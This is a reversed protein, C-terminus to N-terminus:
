HGLSDYSPPASDVAVSGHNHPVGVSATGSCEGGRGDTAKFAIRYIRGDGSGDREARLSVDNSAAGLVADASGGTPEDQTVGTITLTTQDGDPDTARSLSVPVLKHNPPWVTDPTATVHSCDPNLPQWSPHNANGQILPGSGTMIDGVYLRQYAESCTEQCGQNLVWANETEDPSWLPSAVYCGFFYPTDCGANPAKGSTNHIVTGDASVTALVPVSHDFRVAALKSGDPSWDLGSPGFTGPDISGDTTLQVLGSGDPHITWIDFRNNTESVFAIKTGDPSWAPQDSHGTTTLRTQDTGYANMTYIDFNFCYGPGGCKTFRTFAIRTGDPSWTPVSDFSDSTDGTLRTRGSGDANMVYIGANTVSGVFAIKKGDASWAPETDWAGAPSIDTDGTGDPNITHIAPNSVDTNRFGDDYAIKGNQGPFAAHAPPAVLVLALVTIFVLWSGRVRRSDIQFGM